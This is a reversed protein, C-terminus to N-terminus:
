ERSWTGKMPSELDDQTEGWKRRRLAEDYTMTAVQPLKKEMQWKHVRRWAHHNNKRPAKFTAAVKILRNHCISCNFETQFPSLAQTHLYQRATNPYGEFTYTKAVEHAFPSIHHPSRTYWVSKSWVKRCHLCLYRGSRKEGVRQNPKM